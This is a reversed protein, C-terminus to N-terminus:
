LSMGELIMLVESDGTPYWAKTWQGVLGMKAEQAIVQREGHPWVFAKSVELVQAWKAVDEDGADVPPRDVSIELKIADGM